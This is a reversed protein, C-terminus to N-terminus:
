FHNWNSMQENRKKMKAIGSAFAVLSSKCCRSSWLMPRGSSSPWIKSLLTPHSKWMMTCLTVPFMCSSPTSSFVSISIQAWLNNRERNGRNLAESPVVPMVTPTLWNQWGCKLEKMLYMPCKM